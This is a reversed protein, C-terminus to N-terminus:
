NVLTGKYVNSIDTKTALMSEVLDITQNTYNVVIRSGEEVAADSFIGEYNVENKNRITITTNILGIGSFMGSMDNVNTTDFYGLDLTGEDLYIVSFMNQMNTVNSTDFNSLNLTKSWFESFMYDMNTVSSTDFSSLNLYDFGAMEFMSGMNTVNSTDFFSLDLEVAYFMSFMGAMNTVKSTDFNSLDLTESGFRRFMWSMDTVNSTDFNSLDLTFSSYMGTNYFMMSMDTVNSTDINSFDIYFGNDVIDSYVCSSYFMGKMTTVESTNLLHFNNIADLDYFNAFWYSMDQNGYIIDDSQIYLDYYTSYEDVSNVVIFAMISGDQNESVDWVEVADDSINIEEEFNITLIYNRYDDSRFMSTDDITTSMLYTPTPPSAVVRDVVNDREVASATILCTIYTTLNNENSNSKLKKLTLTGTRTSKAELNTKTDFDNVVFLYENGQTCNISLAADFVGSGNTVDYSIIYESGIDLLDVNFSLEKESKVLSLDRENDVLVNSFYVEFDDTDDTVHTVGNISLTVSITAFGVIMFLLFFGIFYKIKNM